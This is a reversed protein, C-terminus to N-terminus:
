RLLLPTRCLRRWERGDGALGVEILRGKCIKEQRRMRAHRIHIQCATFRNIESRIDLSLLLVVRGRGRSKVILLLGVDIGSCVIQGADLFARPGRAM